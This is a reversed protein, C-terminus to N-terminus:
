KERVNESSAIRLTIVLLLIAGSFLLTQVASEHSIILFRTIATIGIYIFYQLPFHFGNRFYEVILAIFEFYLFYVLISDMIKGSESEAASSHAQFIAESLTFTEKTLLSFLIVSFIVLLVNMGYQMYKSLTNM